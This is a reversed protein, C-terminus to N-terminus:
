IFKAKKNSLGNFFIMKSSAKNTLKNTRLACSENYVLLLARM